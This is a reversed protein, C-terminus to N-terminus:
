VINVLTGPGRHSLWFIDGLVALHEKPVVSERRLIMVEPLNGFWENSLKQTYLPYFPLVELLQQSPEASSDRYLMCFLPQWKGPVGDIDAITLVANRIVARLWM